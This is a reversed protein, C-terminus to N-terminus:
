KKYTCYLTIISIAVAIAAIITNIINHRITYRRIGQVTTFRALYKAVGKKVAREGEKTLRYMNIPMNLNDSFEEYEHILEFEDKLVSLLFSNDISLSPTKKLDYLIKEAEVLQTKTLM